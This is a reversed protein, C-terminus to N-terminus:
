IKSCQSPNLASKMSDRVQIIARNNQSFIQGYEAKLTGTASSDCKWISLLGSLTEGHGQAVEKQLVPLNEEIYRLDAVEGASETCNSSGTTIASTQSGWSNLLASVIQVKGPQDGIFLSGLGCGATGYRAAQANLALSMLAIVLFKM